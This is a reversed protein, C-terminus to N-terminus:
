CSKVVSLLLHCQMAVAFPMCVGLAHTRVGGCLRLRARWHTNLLRAHAAASLCGKKNGGKEKWGKREGRKKGGKEKRGKREM